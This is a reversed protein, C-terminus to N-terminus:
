LHDFQDWMFNDMLDRKRRLQQWVVDRKKRAVIESLSSIKCIYHFCSVKKQQNRKGKNVCSM